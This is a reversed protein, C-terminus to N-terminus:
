SVYFAFILPPSVLERTYYTVDNAIDERLTPFMDEPLVSQRFIEGHVFSPLFAFIMDGAQHVPLAQVNTRELSSLSQDKDLQPVAKLTGDVDFQWGHYPCEICNTQPDIRGQSLPAMRHPCVDSMVSWSENPGKWVVLDRGMVTIQQPGLGELASASAIPIWAGIGESDARPSVLLPPDRRSSMQLLRHPMNPTRFLPSSLAAHNDRIRSGRGPTPQFSLALPLLVCLLSMLLSHRSMTAMKTRCNM